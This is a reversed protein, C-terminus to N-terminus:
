PPCKGLQGSKHAGLEVQNGNACWETIGGGYIFLKQSPIGAGRLVIATFESDECKEGGHCYVVIQDARAALPLVTALYKEAHYHDLLFAGPIHGKQFHEDDRADIVLLTDMAFRPDALLQAVQNSNVLGLGEAKLRDALPDEGTAQASPKVSAGTSPTTQAPAKNPFYNRNLKLGYPSLANAAFSLGAGIVAVLLGEIVLFKV